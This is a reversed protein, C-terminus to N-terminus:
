KVNNNQLSRFSFHLSKYRVYVHYNYVGCLGECKRTSLMSSRSIKHVEVGQFEIRKFVDLGFFSDQQRLVEGYLGNVGLSIKGPAIQM